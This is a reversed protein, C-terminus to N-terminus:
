SRKSKSAMPRAEDGHRGYHPGEAVCTTNTESFGPTYEDGITSKSDHQSERSADFATFEREEGIGRDM